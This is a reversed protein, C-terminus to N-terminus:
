LMVNLSEQSTALPRVSGEGSVCVSATPYLTASLHKFCVNSTFNCGLLLRCSSDQNHSSAGAHSASTAKGKTNFHASTESTKCSCNWPYRTSPVIKKCKHASHLFGKKKKASLLLSLSHVEIASSLTSSHESILFYYYYCM